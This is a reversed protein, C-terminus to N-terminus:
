RWQKRSSSFLFSRCQSRRSRWVRSRPHAIGARRVVWGIIVLEGKLERAFQRIVSPPGCTRLEFRVLQSGPQTLRRSQSRTADAASHFGTIDPGSPRVKASSWVVSKRSSIESHTAEYRGGRSRRKRLQTVVVKLIFWEGFIPLADKM